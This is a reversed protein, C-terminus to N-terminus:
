SKLENLKDETLNEKAQLRDLSTEYNLCCGMLGKMMLMAQLFFLNTVLWSSPFSLLSLQSTVQAIYFLGTERMAETEHNSLDKYNDVTIISSLQKLAYKLDERLLVPPKETSPNSGTM